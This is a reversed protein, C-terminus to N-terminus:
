LAQGGKHITDPSWMHEDTTRKAQQQTLTVPSVRSLFYINATLQFCPKQESPSTVPHLLHICLLRYGALGGCTGFVLLLKMSYSIKACTFPQVHSIEPEEPKFL